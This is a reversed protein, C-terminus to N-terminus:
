DKWRDPKFVRLWFESADATAFFLM